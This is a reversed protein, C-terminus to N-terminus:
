QKVGTCIYYFHYVQRVRVDTLSAPLLDVPCSHIVNHSSLVSKFYAREFFSASEYLQEDLFLVLGGKKCVRAMEALALQPDAMGNIAGYNLVIDFTEAQFPLQAADGIVFEMPVRRSTMLDRGQLLMIESLDLGAYDANLQMWGHRYLSNCTGTSIDLVRLREPRGKFADIARAHVQAFGEEPKFKTRLLSLRVPVALVLLSLLYRHKLLFYGVFIVVVVIAADLLNFGELRRVFFLNVLRALMLFLAAVVLLYAVWSKWSLKLPRVPLSLFPMVYQYYSGLFGNYFYDRLAKDKQGLKKDLFLRPIGKVCAYNQGCAECKWFTQYTQWRSQECNLCRYTSINM